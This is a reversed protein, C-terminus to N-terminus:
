KDSDGEAEAKAKARAAKTPAPAPKNTDRAPSLEGPRRTAREIVEPEKPPEPDEVPPEPDEPEPEEDEAEPPAPLDPAPAEDTFLDPREKVLPHEPDATMGEHLMIVGASWTVAASIKSYKM